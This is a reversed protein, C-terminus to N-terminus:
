RRQRGQRSSLASIQQGPIQFASCLPSILDVSCCRPNRQRQCGETSFLLSRHAGTKSERVTWWDIKHTEKGSEWDQWAQKCVQMGIRGNTRVWRQSSSSNCIWNKKANTTHTITSVSLICFCNHSDQHVSNLDDSRSALGQATEDVWLKCLIHFIHSYLYKCIFACMYCFLWVCVCM